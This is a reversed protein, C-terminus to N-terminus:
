VLRVACDLPLEMPELTRGSIAFGTEEFPKTPDPNVIPAIAEVLHQARGDLATFPLLLRVIRTQPRGLHRLDIQRVAGNLSRAVWAYENDLRRQAERDIRDQQWRQVDRRRKRKLDSGVLAAARQGVFEYVVDLGDVAADMVILDALIPAMEFPDFDAYDPCPRTGRRATWHDFLHKLAAHRLPWGARGWPTDPAISVARLTMAGQVVRDAKDANESLTASTNM